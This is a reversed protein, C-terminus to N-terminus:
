VPVNLSEKKQTQLGSLLPRFRSRMRELRLRLAHRPHRADPTRSKSDAGDEEASGQGTFEVAAGAQLESQPIAFESGDPASTEEAVM